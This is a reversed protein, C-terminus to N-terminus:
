YNKQKIASRATHGRWKSHINQAAEIQNITEFQVAHCRWKSQIQTAAQIRNSMEVRAARGRWTAQIKRSATEEHQKQQQEERQKQQQAELDNQKQMQQEKLQKRLQHGRVLGQIKKTSEILIRERFVSRFVRQIRIAARDREREEKCVLNRRM